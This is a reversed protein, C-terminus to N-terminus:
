PFDPYFTLHWEQKLCSILVLRFDHISLSSLGFCQGGVDCAIYIKKRPKQTCLKAGKEYVTPELWHNSSAALSSWGGTKIELKWSGDGALAQHLENVLIKWGLPSDSLWHVLFTSSILKDEHSPVLHSRNTWESLQKRVYGNVIGVCVQLSHHLLWREISCYIFGFDIKGHHEM